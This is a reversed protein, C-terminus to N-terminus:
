WRVQMYGAVTLGFTSSFQGFRPSGVVAIVDRPNEHATLNFLQLGLDMQRGLIDFTKFATVDASFYIPYRLVNPVGIFHQTMDLASFPFGTRWDVAPSVVIRRPLSFTGWGRLRHPVDAPNVSRANRDLLPTDLNTFITGFDNSEGLSKAWVYSVFILSEKPLTKRVALQLERYDSEGTGVLTTFGGELPVDLTPLHSGFRRRIAGQIELSPTLRHEVELAVADARPLPLPALAPTYVYTGTVRGDAPDMYTETRVPFGAYSKAALPVRGVYRGASARFTTRGEADLLIRVGARPGFVASESAGGDLRLGLDLQLRSNVDWLDRIGGGANIESPDLRGAPGFEVVRVPEGRPNVVTIPLDSLTGGM